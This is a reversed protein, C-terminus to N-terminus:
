QQGVTNTIEDEYLEGIYEKWRDLILEPKTQPWEFTVYHKKGPFQVGVWGWGGGGM